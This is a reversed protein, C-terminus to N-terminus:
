PTGGADRGRRARVRRLVPDLLLGVEDVRLRHALALATVAFVGGGVMLELLAGTWTSADVGARDLGALVLWGVVGAAVAATALRVYAQV